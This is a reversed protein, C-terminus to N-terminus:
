GPDDVYHSGTVGSHHSQGIGKRLVDFRQAAQPAAHDGLGVRLEGLAIKSTSCFSQSRWTNRM